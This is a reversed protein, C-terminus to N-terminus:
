PEANLGIRVMCAHLCLISIIGLSLIVGYRAHFESSVTALWEMGTRQAREEEGAMTM